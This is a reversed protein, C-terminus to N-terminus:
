LVEVKKQTKGVGGNGMQPTTSKLKDLASPRESKATAKAVSAVGREIPSREDINLEANLENLRASKVRLEDEQPFPKGVESKATELQGRVSELQQKTAEIRASIQNLVNDIRILNGRSDGGLEVRHSM